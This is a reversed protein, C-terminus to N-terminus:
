SLVNHFYGSAETFLTALSRVVHGFLRTRNGYIDRDVLAGLGIRIGM